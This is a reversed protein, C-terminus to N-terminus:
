LAGRPRSKTISFELYLKKAVRGEIESVQTIYEENVRPDITVRSFNHMRRDVRYERDVPALKKNNRLTAKRFFVVQVAKFASNASIKTANENPYFFCRAKKSLVHYFFHNM